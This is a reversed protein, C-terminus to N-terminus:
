LLFMLVGVSASLSLFLVCNFCYLSLCIGISTLGSSVRADTISKISM